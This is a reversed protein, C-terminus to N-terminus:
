EYRLVTAPNLRAARLTQYGVAAWAVLLTAIFSFVFPRVTLDIRYLFTDLYINAVVYAIPIAIANGILVPISFKALLKWAVTASGAGLTKRVAIEHYRHHSEHISMAILGAIAIGVALVVLGNVFNFMRSFPRFGVDFTADLFRVDLPIDPALENWVETMRALTQDMDRMTVRLIPVQTRPLLQYVSGISGFNQISLPKDEVVGVVQFPQWAAGGTQPLPPIYLIQNIAQQPSAFGMGATFSRDVVISRPVDNGVGSAQRADPSVLDTGYASDLPRGALLPVGLTEFFDDAIGHLNAAFRPSDASPEQSLLWVGSGAFPRVTIASVAEVGPISEHAAKYVDFAMRADNLNNGVLMVSRTSEGLAGSRLVQIQNQMVIVVALLLGAAAFQLAVMASRNYGFSGSTSAARLAHGPAVRCAQLAPAGGGMVVVALLLIPLLVWLGPDTFAIKRIEVDLAQDLIPAVLIVVLLAAGLAGVAHLGTVSLNQILVQQASAGMVRRTGLEKLRAHAQGAALNAYNICALALILSGLGILVTTISLAGGSNAFLMQNLRAVALSDLSHPKFVLRALTKQDVPVYKDPFSVLGSLFSEREALSEPVLVYTSASAARWDEPRPQGGNGTSIAAMYTEHVDWTALVEFDFASSKPIPHFVGTVTADTLGDLVVKRGLAETTGFLRIAAPGSILVSRPASLATAQSGAIFHLNFAALFSSDAAVGQIYVKESGSSVATDGMGRVRVVAELQPFEEKLYRAAHEATGLTDISPREDDFDFETSVLFIRGANTFHREATEQYRVVSWAVIFAALGLALCLVNILTAAKHRRFARLAGKLYHGIM